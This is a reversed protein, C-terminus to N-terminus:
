NGGNIKNMIKDGISQFDERFDDHDILMGGNSYIEAAKKSFKIKGLVDINEKSCYVEIMNNGARHRNIVVDFPIEMERVLTVALDLDHLGFKTPETVLVAYDVDNLTKVVSCSTGPSSDLICNKEINIMKKIQSIIPGGMPEGINLRGEYTTIAGSNGIFIEGVARGEESIAGQKCALYCAGCGHCLEEFLMIGDIVSALANFQCAKVCDGCNICISKDFVPNLIHVDKKDVINAKLFINGNPEEVDCDVYTMNMTKALNTAITTKGTGGKGSLVAIEM